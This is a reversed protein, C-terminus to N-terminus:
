VEFPGRVVLNGDATLTRDAATPLSTFRMLFPGGSVGWQSESKPQEAFLKKSSKLVPWCDYFVPNGTMLTVGELLIQKARWPAIHTSNLLAFLILPIDCMEIGSSEPKM